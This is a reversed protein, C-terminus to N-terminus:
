LAKNKSDVFIVNSFLKIQLQLEQGFSFLPKKDM